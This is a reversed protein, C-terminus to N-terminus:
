EDNWCYCPKESNFCHSCVTEYVQIILTIQEDTLGIDRFKKILLVDEGYGYYKNFETIISNDVYNKM